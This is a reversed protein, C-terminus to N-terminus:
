RQGYFYKAQLEFPRGAGLGGDVILDHGTVFKGSDGSLYAVAEAIDQPQGTNQLPQPGIMGTRRRLLRAAQEDPTGRVPGVALPTAIFGPSISNVRIADSALEMAVMRTLHIVAAKASSYCTAGYGARSGTVSAINIIAGGGAARLAPVAARCGLFVGKVLVRYTQDWADPDIQDILGEVGGYGANNVMVTLSGFREVCTAVARELDARETVDTRVFVAASGLSEAVARGGDENVDAIVVRAGRQVFHRAIATGIGSAAGTVVATKGNLDSM